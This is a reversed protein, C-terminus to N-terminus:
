RPIAKANRYWAVLANCTTADKTARAMLTNTEPFIDYGESDWSPGPDSEVTGSLRDAGDAITRGTARPVSAEAPAPTAPRGACIRVSRTGYTVVSAAVEDLKTRLDNYTEKNLETYTEQLNSVVLWEANIKEVEVIRQDRIEVERKQWKEGWRYGNALGGASFLAIAGVIYVAATVNLGKAFTFATSLWGM